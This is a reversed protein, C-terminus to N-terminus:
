KKKTRNKLLVATSAAAITLIGLMTTLEPITGQIGILGQGNTEEELLFQPILINTYTSNQAIVLRSAALQIGNLTVNWDSAVDIKDRPLEAYLFANDGATGTVNFSIKHNADDFVASNPAITGNSETVVLESTGALTHTVSTGIAYTYSFTPTVATFPIDAIAATLLYTDSTLGEFDISCASPIDMPTDLGLVLQAITGSGNFSPAGPGAAAGYTVQGAVSADPGAVIPSSNVLVNDSPMSISHYSLLTENWEITFQWTALDVVNLVTINFTITSPPTTYNALFNVNTPTVPQIVLQTTVQAHATSTLSALFMTALVSSLILLLFLRKEVKM